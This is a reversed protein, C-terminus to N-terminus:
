EVVAIESSWRSAGQQPQATTRLNDRTCGSCCRVQWHVQWRVQSSGPGPSCCGPTGHHRAARAVALALQRHGSPKGPVSSSHTAILSRRRSGLDPHVVIVVVSGDGSTVRVWRLRAITALV